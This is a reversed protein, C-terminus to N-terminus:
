NAPLRTNSISSTTSKLSLSSSKYLAVAYENLFVFLVLMVESANQSQVLPTSKNFQFASSPFESEPLKDNSLSSECFSFFCIFM